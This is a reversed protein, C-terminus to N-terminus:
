AMLNITVAGGEVGFVQYIDRSGTSEHAPVPLPKHLCVKYYFAPAQVNSGMGGKSNM